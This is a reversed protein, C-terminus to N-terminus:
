MADVAELMSSIATTEMKEFDSMHNTNNKARIITEKTILCIAKNLYECIWLVFLRSFESQIKWRM